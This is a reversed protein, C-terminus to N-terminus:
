EYDSEEKISEHLIEERWVEIERPAEIGIAVQRNGKVRIISIKIDKGIYVSEGAFRTLILM